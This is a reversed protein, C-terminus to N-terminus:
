SGIWLPSTVYYKWRTAGLLAFIWFLGPLSVNCSRAAYLVSLVGISEESTSPFLIRASSRKPKFGVKALSGATATQKARAEASLDVMKPRDKVAVDKWSQTAVTPRRPVAPQCSKPTGPDRRLKEEVAKAVFKSM